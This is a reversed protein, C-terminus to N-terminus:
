LCNEIETVSDYLKKVNESISEFFSSPLNSITMFSEESEYNPHKKKNIVPYVIALTKSKNAEQIFLQRQTENLHNYVYLQSLNFHLNM